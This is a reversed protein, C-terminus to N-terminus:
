IFLTILFFADVESSSASDMLSKLIYFEADFVIDAAQSIGFSVLFVFCLIFMHVFSTRM